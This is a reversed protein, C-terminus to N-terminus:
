NTQCRPDTMEVFELRSAFERAQSEAGAPFEIRIWRTHTPDHGYRDLASDPPRLLLIPQGSWNHQELRYHAAVSGELLEARPEKPGQVILRTGDASVRAAPQPYSTPWASQIAEGALLAFGVGNLCQYLPGASVTPNWRRADPNEGPFDPSRFDGCGRDGDIRSIRGLIALDANTENFTTARVMIPRKGDVAPLVYFVEPPSATYTRRYRDIRGLLPAEIETREAQWRYPDGVDISLNLVGVDNLLSISEGFTYELVLVTETSSASFAYGNLCQTLPGYRAHTRPPPTSAFAISPALMTLLAVALIVSASRM